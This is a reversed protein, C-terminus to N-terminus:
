GVHGPEPGARHCTIEVIQIRYYVPVLPREKGHLITKVYGPEWWAPKQELLQHAVVRESQWEPTDPLEEYKGFVVVSVWQESNVVEEAEVCVLPNLRMWEIKRGVTSFSYLYHDHYAFYIPVVYPQGAQACGLRGAHIRALVALGEQRTREQILM